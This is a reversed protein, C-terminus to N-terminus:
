EPGNVCAVAIAAIGEGRGAFGLQETTTAKVSVREPPLRLAAGIERRMDAFHPALEPAQALITCDVNNISFGKKRLMGAVGALVTKVSDAGAWQPDSSPFHIGIDGEAAAGLLADAIAHAAVDADSHGELGKEHSIRVGGLVLARGKVLRHADFGIGTRIM